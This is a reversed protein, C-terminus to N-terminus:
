KSDNAGYELKYPNEDTCQKVIAEDSSLWEYLSRLVDEDYINHAEFFKRSVKISDYNIADIGVKLVLLIKDIDDSRMKVRIKM